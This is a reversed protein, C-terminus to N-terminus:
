KRIDILRNIKSLKKLMFFTTCYEYLLKVWLLINKLNIKLNDHVWYLFFFRLVSNFTRERSYHGWEEIGLKLFTM